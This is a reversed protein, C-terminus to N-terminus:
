KKMEMKIFNVSEKGSSDILELIVKRSDMKLSFHIIKNVRGRVLTNLSQM